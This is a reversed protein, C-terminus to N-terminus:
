AFSGLYDTKGIAVGQQRLIAHTTAVHFYFNPLAFTVLYDEGGMTTKVGGPAITVERTQSGELAETSITALFAETKAIRERLEPITTETDEFRPAEIAALRAITLKATDTARQFQGALPIMDPALRANILSAADLGKEACYAEMKDLYINLRALGRQFVPVTLRYMSLSM